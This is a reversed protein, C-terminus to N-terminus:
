KRKNKDDEDKSSNQSKTNNDIVVRVIQEKPKNEKEKNKQENQKGKKSPKDIGIIPLPDMRKDVFSSYANFVHAGANYLNSLNKVYTTMTDIYAAGHKLEESSFGQLRKEWEFTKMAEDIEAKTFERRHKYLKTPSQKIKERRAAAKAEAEKAKKEQREKQKQAKSTGSKGSGKKTAYKAHSQEKGYIHQYWKMGERGYHELFDQDIETMMQITSQESSKM